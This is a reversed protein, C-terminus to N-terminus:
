RTRAGDAVGQLTGMLVQTMNYVVLTAGDRAVARADDVTGVIDVRAAGTGDAREHIRDILEHLPSDGDQRSAGLDSPGVMYGDIGPVDLIQATREVARVSEIMAVTLTRDAMGERHAQAGFTGYAGARSYTAFGRDGRPPYHVARVLEVAQEADDIHPGVIGDAGQDLVRLALPWDRTGIRVLVGMAHVQAAAIHRRVPLVDGPGHECDLLVFDFGTVGCMEVLEESPVRVLAGVLTEGSRIREKMAGKSSQAYTHM